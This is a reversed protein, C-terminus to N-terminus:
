IFRYQVEESAMPKRPDDNIEPQKMPENMKVLSASKNPRLGMKMVPSQM